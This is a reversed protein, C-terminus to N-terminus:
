SHKVMPLYLYVKGLQSNEEGGINPGIQQWNADIWQYVQVHGSLSGNGDSYAGIAM